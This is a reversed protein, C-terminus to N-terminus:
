SIVKIISSGRLIEVQVPFEIQRLLLRVYRRDRSSCTQIHRRCPLLCLHVDHLRQHFQAHFVLIFM